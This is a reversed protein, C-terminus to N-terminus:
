ANVPQKESKEEDMGHIVKISKVWQKCAGKCKRRQDEWGKGKKEEHEEAKM